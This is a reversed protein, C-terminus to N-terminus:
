PTLLEYWEASPHALSHAVVTHEIVWILIGLQPSFCELLATGSPLFMM